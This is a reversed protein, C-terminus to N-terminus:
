QTKAKAQDEAFKVKFDALLKILLSHQQEYWGNVNYPALAEKVQAIYKKLAALETIDFKIVEIYSLNVYLAIDALTLKDGGAVMQGKHGELFSNVTGLVEKLREVKPVPDTGQFNAYHVDTLSRYLTGTNYLLFQDITLRKKLDKAPYLDSNPTRSQILYSAIAASEWLTFGDTDVLTPICHFPNIQLSIFLLLQILDLNVHM